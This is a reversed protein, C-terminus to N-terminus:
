LLLDDFSLQSDNEQDRDDSTASKAQVSRLAARVDKLNFRILRDTLSVAPIRGARRLRHVTAESVQLVEALQRATLYEIRKEKSPESSDNLKEVAVAISSKGKPSAM